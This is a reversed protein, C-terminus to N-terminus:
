LSLEDTLIMRHSSERGISGIIRNLGPFASLVAMSNHNRVDNHVNFNSVTSLDFDSHRLAPMLRRVEPSAWSNVAAICRLVDLSSTEDSFVLQRFTDSAYDGYLYLGIVDVTGDDCFTNGNASTIGSLDFLAGGPASDRYISDNRRMLADVVDDVCDFTAYSDFPPSISSGADRVEEALAMVCCALEEDSCMFGCESLAEKAMDFGDRFGAAHAQLEFCFRGYNDQYFHPNHYISMLELCIQEDFASDHVVTDTYQRVHEIEHKWAVCLSVIQVPTIYEGIGSRGLGVVVDGTPLIATVGQGCMCPLGSDPWEDIFTASVVARSDHNFDTRRDIFRPLVFCDSRVLPRFWKDSLQAAHNTITVSM